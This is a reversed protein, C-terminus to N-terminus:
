DAAAERRAALYAVVITALFLLSLGVSRWRYIRSEDNESGDIWAPSRAAVYEDVSGDAVVDFSARGAFAFPELVSGLVDAFLEADEVTAWEYLELFEGPREGAFWLKRRFGSMGIFFPTAVNAFPDFLVERLAAGKTRNTVDVEFVLIVGDDSTDEEPRDLVTERYAVFTDGDSMELVDGLRDRPFQVRGTLLYQVSRIAAWAFTLVTRLKM